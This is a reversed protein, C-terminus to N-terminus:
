IPHAASWAAATCRRLEAEVMEISAPQDAAALDDAIRRSLAADDAGAVAATVLADAYAAAAADALGMRGAAWAAAARMARARALFREEEDHAFRNEFARERDDFTTM